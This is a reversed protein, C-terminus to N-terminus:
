KVEIVAYKSIKWFEEPDDIQLYAIVGDEEVFTYSSDPHESIVKAKHSYLPITKTDRIDLETFYDDEFYEQISTHRGLFLFGGDRTLLGKDKLEKYTGYAIYAKNLEDTKQTVVEQTMELTDAQNAIEVEMEGIRQSMSALMIDREEIQQKLMAIEGNQDDISQNLAAIKRKFSSLEIGSRKLKKELEDIHQSSKELMENMLNIDDIIAQKQDRGGEKNTEISLQKRKEKIFKLNEEIDSFDTMLENMLSDRENLEMSIESKESKLLNIESNKQRYISIGAYVLIVAMISILLLNAIRTKKKKDM